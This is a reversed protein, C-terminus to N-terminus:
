ANSGRKIAERIRACARCYRHGRRTRGTNADDYPHNKPCHTKARQWAAAPPPNGPGPLHPSRLMNERHTVPELHNPNVCAHVRCLHDLELGPPIPGVLAEYAFRHAKLRVQREGPKTFSGYGHRDAAATWLWCDDPGAVAVKSAFTPWRAFPQALVDTSM